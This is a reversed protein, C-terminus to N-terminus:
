GVVFYQSTVFQIWWSSEIPTPNWGSVNNELPKGVSLVGNAMVWFWGFSLVGRLGIPSMTPLQSPWGCVIAPFSLLCDIMCKQAHPYRTGKAVTPLAAGRCRSSPKTKICIFQVLVIDPSWRARRRKERLKGEGLFLVFNSTRVLLWWSM